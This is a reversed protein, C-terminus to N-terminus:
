YGKPLVAQERFEKPSLGFEKKFARYFSTYDSFGYQHYLEGFPIGSLIGNKSAQLRKKLIYQHLSIGMNDKFVHSIHYKSAYFFSALHDLSLNEELHNNIYDCLNLYLVNEYVAPVQHLMDYTIRNLLLMFSHIQLESNLKHFAKNGHIEELLDLLRGQINQFTVFDRRFHYHNNESVYRFSYSFDESWSCMTEFYNRSIWLVIRQYTKGTSHFIPHHKVEPPILLYDGYQLPYQKGEVDYTVDGNLFFYVEYYSHSHDVVHNLDLDKYFFVEFEGSNMYQRENFGTSLEKRM